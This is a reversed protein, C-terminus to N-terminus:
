VSEFRSLELFEERIDFYTGDQSTGEIPKLWESKNEGFVSAWNAYDTKM